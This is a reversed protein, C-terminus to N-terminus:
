PKHTGMLCRPKRSRAFVADAAPYPRTEFGGEGLLRPHDPVIAITQPASLENTM